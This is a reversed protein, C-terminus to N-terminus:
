HSILFKGRQLVINGNKIVYFYVGSSVPVGNQNKAGQWETPDGSQNIVNVLEGSIDYIFVQANPPLCSIKLANDHAYKPNYPDPWVNIPCTPTFTPTPTFTDTITPTMTPTYTNTPTFSNTPTPTVTPTFSDTPTLTETPTDTLTPTDTITPTPTFTPTFTITPTDTPTNTNCAVTYAVPNPTPGAVPPSGYYVTDKDYFINTNCTTIQVLVTVSISTSPPVDGVNWVVAGGATLGCPAGSCSVYTLDTPLTDIITVNTLFSGSSTTVSPIFEVYQGIVYQAQAGTIGLFGFFIFIWFVKRFFGKSPILNKRPLDPKTILNWM